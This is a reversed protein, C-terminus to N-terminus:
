IAIIVRPLSTIYGSGTLVFRLYLTELGLTMQEDKEILMLLRKDLFWVIRSLTLLSSVIVIHTELGSKTILEHQIFVSLVVCM